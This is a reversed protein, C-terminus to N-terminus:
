DNTSWKGNDTGAQWYEMIQHKLQALRREGIYLQQGTSLVMQNDKIQKVHYLNCLYGRDVWVFEDEPLKESIKKLSSRVKCRTADTKEIYLYKGERWIYVIKRLPFAAELAQTIMSEMQQKPIFRFPRFEFSKYVYSEYASVFIILIDPATEQIKAALEFGNLEQMEIDLFLLDFAQGDEIEYWLAKSSQYVNCEYPISKKMFYEKIHKEMFEADEVTDDCIAAKMKWATYKGM